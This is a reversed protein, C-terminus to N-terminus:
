VRPATAHRLAARRRQERWGLTVAVVLGLGLAPALFVVIREVEFLDPLVFRPNSTSYWSSLLIASFSLGGDM